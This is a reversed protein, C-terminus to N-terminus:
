ATAFSEDGLDADDIGIALGDGSIALARTLNNHAGFGVHQTVPAARVERLLCEAVAPHPGAIDCCPILLAVNEDNVARLVHDNRAALVDVARLYFRRNMLM